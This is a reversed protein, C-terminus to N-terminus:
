WTTGGRVLGAAPEGGVGRAVGEAVQQMDACGALVSVVVLGLTLLLPMNRRCKTPM